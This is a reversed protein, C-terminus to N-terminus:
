LYLTLEVIQVNNFFLKKIRRDIQEGSEFYTEVLVINFWTAADPLLFRTNFM